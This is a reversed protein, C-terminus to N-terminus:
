RDGGTPDSVQRTVTGATADIEYRVLAPTPLAFSVSLEVPELVSRTLGSLVVVPTPRHATSPM